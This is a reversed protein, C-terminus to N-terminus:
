LATRRPADCTGLPIGIIVVEAPVTLGALTTIIPEPTAPNCAIAVAFLIPAMTKAVSTLIAEFADGEKLQMASAVARLLIISFAGKVQSALDVFSSKQLFQKTARNNSVDLFDIQFVRDGVRVAIHIEDKGLKTAYVSPDFAEIEAAIEKAPAKFIVDIDLDGYDTKKESAMNIVDDTEFSDTTIVDSGYRKLAALRTSGVQYTPSSSDDILGKKGLHHLLKGIYSQDEADPFTGFQEPLVTSLDTDSIKSYAMDRGHNSPHDGLKTKILSDAANGGESLIESVLSILTEQLSTM